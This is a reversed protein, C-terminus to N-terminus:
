PMSEYSAMCDEESFNSYVICVREWLEEIGRLPTSFENLCRKLLVWFAGHSEFIIISCAVPSTPITTIQAM